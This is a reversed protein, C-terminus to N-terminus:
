YLNAFRNPALETYLAASQISQHRLFSQVIRVDTGRNILNYGCVHRLMHPHVNLDQLDAADASKKIIEWVMSRCLPQRRESVFLTDCHQPHMERRETLWAQVARPESNFLPHTGSAAPRVCNSGNLICCRRKCTPM